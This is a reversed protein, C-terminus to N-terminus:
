APRQPPHAAEARRWLDALEARMAALYGTLDGRAAGSEALEAMRLGHSRIARRYADDLVERAYQRAAAPTVVQTYLGALHVALQHHRRPRVPQDPHLADASPRHRATRLVLVPDPDCGDAVLFRIIEVWRNDPRWIASDPVLELIPAAHAESGHMLAGVLQDEPNWQRLV